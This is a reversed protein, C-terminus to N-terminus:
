FSNIQSFFFSRVSDILRPDTHFFARFFHYRKITPTLYSVVRKSDKMKMDLIIDDYSGDAVFSDNDSSKCVLTPLLYFFPGFIDNV